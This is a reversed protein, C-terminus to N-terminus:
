SMVEDLGFKGERDGVMFTGGGDEETYWIPGKKKKM